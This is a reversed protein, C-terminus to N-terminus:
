LLTSPAFALAFCFLGGLVASLESALVANRSSGACHATLEVLEDSWQGKRGRQLQKLQYLKPFHDTLMFNRENGSNSLVQKEGWCLM